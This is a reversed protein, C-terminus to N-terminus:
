LFLQKAESMGRKPMGDGKRVDDEHPWRRTLLTGYSPVAVFFEM